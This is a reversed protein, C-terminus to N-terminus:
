DAEMLNTKSVILYGDQSVYDGIKKDDVRLNTIFLPGNYRSILRVDKGLYPFIYKKDNIENGLGDHWNVITYKCNSFFLNIKTM